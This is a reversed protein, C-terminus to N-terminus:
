SATSAGEALPPTVPAVRGGQLFLEAAWHTIAILRRDAQRAAVFQVGVPLGSPPHVFPLSMAPTGLLTWSRCFLPDGTTERTPPEGTVSPTLACAFTDLVEDARRRWGAVRAVAADYARRSTARGKEVMELLPGSLDARSARHEDALSRALEVHLITTAAELLEDFHLGLDIQELHAGADALRDAVHAVAARSSPEARSWCDTRLLAIRPTARVARAPALASWQSGALVRTQLEVDDVTRGFVGITDLSPAVHRVGAFAILGYTPKLGFVGCYSAPRVISGGTQTGLAAPAM